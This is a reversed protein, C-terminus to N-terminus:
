GGTPGDEAEDRDPWDVVAGAVDNESLYKNVFPCLPVITEGRRVADALSEGVLTGGLGQGTFAPDVETHPFVIRGDDDIEFESYGGLQDGVWIEYRGADDNRVVKKENQQTSSETKSEDSM